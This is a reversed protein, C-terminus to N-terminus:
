FDEVEVGVNREKAIGILAKSIAVDMIGLGVCKFVVNKGEEVVVEEQGDAFVDGIAVLDEETLKARIIEGSEALCAEKSDVYVKGGGSLLTETDIEQMHPKYSGILSIFRSKRKDQGNEGLFEFPFLPEVSPTCCFVVDAEGVLKRLGDGYEEDSSGEKTFSRVSVSGGDLSEVIGDVVKGARGRSRNVFVVEKVEEGFLILSLRVHWEAQKGAGFVVVKGKKIANCRVLLTMTALATRFATVEAASVLGILKGEEDFLNIVGLIDGNRPVGVIKIGTVSTLSAPM